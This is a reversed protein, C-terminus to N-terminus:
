STTREPNPNTQRGFVVHGAPPRIYTWAPDGGNLGGIQVLNSAALVDLVQAYLPPGAGAPTFKYLDGPQVQDPPVTRYEPTNAM